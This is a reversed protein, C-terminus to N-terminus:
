PCVPKGSLRKVCSWTSDAHGSKELGARAEAPHVTFVIANDVVKTIRAKGVSGEGLGQFNRPSHALRNAPYTGLFPPPIKRQETWNWYPITPPKPPSLDRVADQLLQEFYYLYTRHWPLFWWNGHPCQNTHIRAQYDYSRKDAGGRDQLRKFAERYLEEEDGKLDRVDIREISRYEAGRLQKARHAPGLLLHTGTLGAAVLLQRRTPRPEIM